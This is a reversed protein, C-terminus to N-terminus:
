FGSNFGPVRNYAMEDMYYARILVKISPDEGPNDYAYSAVTACPHMLSKALYNNSGNRYDYRIGYCYYAQNTPLIAFNNVIFEDTHIRGLLCHSLEHFVVVERQDENFSAWWTPDIKIVPAKSRATNVTCNAVVGTLAETTITLNNIEIKVNRIALEEKFKDFYPQYAADIFLGPNSPGGCATLSLALIILYKYKGTSM